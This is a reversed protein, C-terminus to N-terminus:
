RNKRHVYLAWAASVLLSLLLIINCALSVAAGLAYDEPEYRMVIEGEGQPLVSARLVWDARFLELPQVQGGTHLEAKWSPHYIESFVCLAPARTSFSYHLENPAYSTMAVSANETSFRSEPGLPTRDGRVVATDHLDVKALAAIEEDANGAAYVGSAFWAQGFAYPNYLAQVDADVIIYRCNLMSLVPEYGLADQMEGITGAQSASRYLDRIEPTIYRDILDQYRQMKAPSYGGISKHRFSTLSSNFTSESLDLVRYSPDKDELIFRDVPRMDDFGANFTKPSIFHESNLYRKGATWMDALVLVGIVAFAAATRRGRIRGDPRYQSWLLLAASALILLFSRWADTQLLHERDAQLAEVLIPQMQADADSVFTGAISPLLACLICFGGTVAFAAWTGRVVKKRDIEQKMIKDLTYIGLLPMCFQLIVLAMSVTRFKNYMPVYNFWLETFWMMHRGWGLMVALVVCVLLWWKEKNRLLCLGLIFLFCSIAGMYMPGATFPQPGWYLPLAKCIQRANQGASKFLRYTESDSGLSGHSSGGNFNPIMLNPTEEIGYSWATAYDLDLGKAFGKGEDGSEGGGSLESGGRMTLPAYAYTPILKNANTGIGVTGFVLLLLSAAAFNRFNHRNRKLLVWVLCAAAYIFIVIALYYTIQVHNAKVQFSLAFAFAAAGMFAQVKKKDFASRYTYILAAIAWPAFAIAQMKTNHGVQIIQFNYSCFAVAVAGMVALYRNVGLALMMLFAGLLALFMYSAPRRGWLLADYLSKTWDGKFNDIFTVNPMGGFMSDTWATQNDPNAKNWMVSEEAMGRWGAIDSQNVIKGKLVEPMFGYSIVLFFAAIAAYIGINKLLEKNM